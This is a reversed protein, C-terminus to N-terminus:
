QRSTLATVASRCGFSLSSRYPRLCIAANRPSPPRDALAPCFRATEAKCAVTVRRLAAVGAPRPQASPEEQALAPMVGVAFVIALIPMALVRCSSLAGFHLV